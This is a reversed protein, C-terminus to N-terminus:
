GGPLDAEKELHRVLARLRLDVRPEELLSQRREANRLFAHAIIDALMAPDTVQLLQEDLRDPIAAGNERLRACLNLAAASLEQMEADQSGLTRVEELEAIRFPKEQLYGSFRVRTLGQLILHSTGDERGVSARVLGLGAIQHFDDPGEAEEVGPKMLAVCFMREHELAWALMARYRLEFIYLPLLAHPFLVANPLVM